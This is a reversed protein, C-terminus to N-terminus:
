SRSGKRNRKKPQQKPYEDEHLNTVVPANFLGLDDRARRAIELHDESWKDTDRHLMVLDSTCGELPIDGPMNIDVGIITSAEPIQCIASFCRAALTAKREDPTTKSKYAYFVYVVGSPSQMMRAELKGAKSGKLFELFSKGLLRRSFRDERALVRLARETERMSPGHWSEGTFGGECFLEILRDWTYSDEDREVKALFEPRTSVGEWINDQFIALDPGVPFSRGGHLYAGLINEEHGAVIIAARTLFQKKKCLYEVFDSITDLHRLILFFAKEDFVHFFPEDQNCSSSIPVERNGGCAVAIRHYIRKQNPPLSLGRTGDKTIVHDMKDLWRLAGKIQNISADVAKREWRSWNLSAEGDTRLTIEKVSFVIVYPDCVVLIDCLEKGPNAGQPNAYSWLSLFSKRCVNYVFQETRTLGEAM